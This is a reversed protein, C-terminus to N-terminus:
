LVALNHEALRALQCPWPARCLSCSGADDVHVTIARVALSELLRLVHSVGACPAVRAISPQSITRPKTTVM